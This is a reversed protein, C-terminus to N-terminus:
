CDGLPDGTIMYLLVPRNEQRALEFGEFVDTVWPLKRLKFLKEASARIDDAKQRLRSSEEGATDQSRLAPPVFVASLLLLVCWRLIAHPDREARIRKM